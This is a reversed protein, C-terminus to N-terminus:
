GGLRARELDVLPGFVGQSVGALTHVMLREFPPVRGVWPMFTDRLWGLPVWDSQFFPTILRNALQYWSLHLRRRQSYRALAQEPDPTDALTDALVMADWLALNAGQGLQPSMAHAADGLYVVRGAHWPYMGVDLYRTFVLDEPGQVQALLPGAAPMLGLVEERWAQWGAARWAAVRDARLSWFLSVLPVEGSPGLGTPLTGVMRRCGDVSQRLVGAYRGEPDQGVFWLAGWTHPRVRKYLPTDDRLMSRSGDCVVCLEHPGYAEGATSVFRLGGDRRLDAIEVGQRLTVPAAQVARWLESFLVGRHLGQGQWGGPVRDYRLSFVERGRRTTCRLGDVPSTRALVRELLGLRALVVQGSPQLLIGAGVPGPEAVREYVTVAHGQACLLLAAALGATGGGIIGIDM